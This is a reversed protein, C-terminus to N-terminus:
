WVESMVYDKGAAHCQYCGDLKGRETVERSDADLTAWFWDGEDPAYGEVKMMATLGRITAGEADDYGEKVIVGGDAITDEGGTASGYAEDSWWSQVYPGHAGTASALVGEAGPPQTWSPYDAIEEALREALADDSPGCGAALLLLVQM